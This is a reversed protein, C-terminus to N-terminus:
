NQVELLVYCQKNGIMSLCYEWMKNMCLYGKRGVRYGSNNDYAAVKSWLM